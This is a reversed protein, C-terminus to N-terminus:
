KYYFYKTAYVIAGFIRNLRCKFLQHKIENNQITIYGHKKHTYVNSVTFKDSTLYNNSKYEDLVSNIAGVFYMYCKKETNKETIELKKIHHEDGCVINITNCNLKFITNYLSSYDYDNDHAEYILKTIKDLSYNIPIRPSLIYANKKINNINENIINEINEAYNETTVCRINDVLLFSCDNYNIIKSDDIRCNQQIETYVTTFISIIRDTINKDYKTRISEDCIDHDDGLMINFSKQLINKKRLFAEKYVNYIEERLNYFTMEERPCFCKGQLKNCLKMFLLDLYIQDGLHFSIFTENENITDWIGTEPVFHCDCNFVNIKKEINNPIIINMQDDNVKKNDEDNFMITYKKHKIDKFIIKHSYYKQLSIRHTINEMINNKNNEHATLNVTIIKDCYSMLNLVFCKKDINYEGLIPIFNTNM